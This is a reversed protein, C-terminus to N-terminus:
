RKETEIELDIDLIESLEMLYIAIDALEEGVTAKNKRWADYAEAVQGYLLCFEENVDTVKFGKILKNQYVEKQM